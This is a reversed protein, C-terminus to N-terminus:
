GYIGFRIRNLNDELIQFDGCTLLDLPRRHGLAGIEERLWENVLDVRGFVDIALALLFTARVLRWSETKDLIADQDTAAWAPRLSESGRLRERLATSDSGGSAVQLVLGDGFSRALARASELGLTVSDRFPKLDVLTRVASGFALGGGLLRTVAAGYDPLVETLATM